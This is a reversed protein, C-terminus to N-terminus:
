ITEFGAMSGPAQHFLSGLALQGQLSTLRSVYTSAPSFTCVFITEQYSTLHCGLAPGRVSAWFIFSPYPQNHTCFQKCPSITNCLYGYLSIYIPELEVRSIGWLTGLPGSVTSSPMSNWMLRVEWIHLLDQIIGLTGSFRDGFDYLEQGEHM